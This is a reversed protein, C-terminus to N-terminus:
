HKQKTKQKELLEELRNKKYKLNFYRTGFPLADMKGQYEEVQEKIRKKTKETM